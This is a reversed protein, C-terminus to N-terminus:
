SFYIYIVIVIICIIAGTVKTHKWPATDVKNSEKQVYAVEKPKFKGILIMIVSNLVFLIAMIHLFHPYAEAQVLSLAEESLVGSEEAKSVASKIFSPRLVFESISYLIAGSFM